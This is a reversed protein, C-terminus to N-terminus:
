KYDHWIEVRVITLNAEFPNQTYVRQSCMDRHNEFFGSVRIKKFFYKGFFFFFFFHLFNLLIYHYDEFIEVIM